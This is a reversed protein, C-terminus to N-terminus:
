RPAQRMQDSSQRHMCKGLGNATDLRKKSLHVGTKESTDRIYRGCLVPLNHQAKDLDHVENKLTDSKSDGSHVM